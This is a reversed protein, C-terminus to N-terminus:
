RVDDIKKAAMWKPLFLAMRADMDPSNLKAKKEKPELAPANAEKSSSSGSSSKVGKSVIPVAVIDGGAKAKAEDVFLDDDPATDDKIMRTELFNQRKRREDVILKQIRIDDVPALLWRFQRFVKLAGLDIPKNAAVAKDMDDVHREMAAAGYLFRGTQGKVTIRKQHDFVLFNACNQYLSRHFDSSSRVAKVTLSEGDLMARLIMM